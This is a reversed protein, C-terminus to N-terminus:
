ADGGELLARLQAVTIAGLRKPLGPNTLVSIVVTEGKWDFVLGEVEGRGAPHSVMTAEPQLGLDLLYIGLAKANDSVCALHIGSFETATGNAVAGLLSPQFDALRQMLLLAQQRLSRLRAPQHDACFLALHDRVAAEVQENTPLAEHAIRGRHGGTLRDYAKRKASQYDLGEEAIMQAASAAIEDRLSHM